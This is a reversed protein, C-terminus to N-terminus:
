SRWTSSSRYWIEGEWQLQKKKEHSATKDRSDNKMRSQEWRQYIESVLYDSANQHRNNWKSSRVASCIKFATKRVLQESAVTSGSDSAREWNKIIPFINVTNRAYRCQKKNKMDSSIVVGINAEHIIQVPNGSMNYTHNCSLPAFHMVKYKLTM